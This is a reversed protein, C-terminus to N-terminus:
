GSPRLTAPHGAHVRAPSTDSWVGTAPDYLEAPETSVRSDRSGGGGVVLVRGDRLLTATHGSRARALSGTTSWAGTAPDYLEASASASGADEGGTVLVLGSPLLTATHGSRGQAPAGTASWAGTAPDYLEAGQGVVLVRGNRLLTATHGSRARTLPSAPSWARTVPDYLEASALEGSADRGGTVLLRGSPLLTATHGSRAQAPSAIAKWVGPAPVLVEASAHHPEDIFRRKGGVVLVRGDPLLTAAHNFRVASMTGTLTTIGTAPDYIECSRGEGYYPDAGGTFLVRGDPLLTATHRSRRLILEGTKTWTNTAPDYLENRFYNSGGGNNVVLVRGDKLLTATHGEHFFELQPTRTWTGTAPDYLEAFSASLGILLDGGVVLVRGDPLLTASHESRTVALSGASSWTGAAPDYVEASALRVTREWTVSVLGGTVLVRGDPLLTATHKLRAEALSGTPSWTGTAPDYIEASALPNRPATFQLGSAGGVVLVRGDRLRTATHGYRPTSLARTSTWTDTAPDFVEASAQVSDRAPVGGTALLRGDLLPTLTFDSRAAAMPAVPDWELPLAAPRQEVAGELRSTQQAKTADQAPEREPERACAALLLALALARYSPTRM